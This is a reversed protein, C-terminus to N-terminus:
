AQAPIKEEKYQPCKVREERVIAKCMEESQGRQCNEMGKDGYWM